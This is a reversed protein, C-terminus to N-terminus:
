WFIVFVFTRLDMGDHLSLLGLVNIKDLTYTKFSKTLNLNKEFRINQKIFVKSNLIGDNELM